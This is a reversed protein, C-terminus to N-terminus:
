IIEILDVASLMCRRCCMKDLGLEDLVKGQYFGDFNPFEKKKAEVEKKVQEDKSLEECRRKYYEWKDCLARNCTFCKIPLIM